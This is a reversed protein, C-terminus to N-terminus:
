PVVSVAVDCVASSLMGADSREARLACWYEPLVNLRLHM